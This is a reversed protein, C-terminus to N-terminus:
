LLCYYKKCWRGYRGSPAYCGVVNVPLVKQGAIVGPYLETSFDRISEKQAIAFDYVQKVAFDIDKKVQSPIDAIIRDIEASSLVVDGTWKDLTKAYELVASEGNKEINSLMEAVVQQANSSETEPTKAAKKLFQVSMM